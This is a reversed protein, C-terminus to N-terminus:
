DRNAACLQLPGSIGRPGGPTVLLKIRQLLERRSPRRSAIAHSDTVFKASVLSQVSLMHHHLSCIGCCRHRSLFGLDTQVTGSGDQSRPPSIKPDILQPQFKIKDEAAM